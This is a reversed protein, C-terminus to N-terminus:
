GGLQDGKERRQERYMHDGRSREGDERGDLEEKRNIKLINGRKLFFEFM